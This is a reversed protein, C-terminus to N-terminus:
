DALWGELMVDFLFCQAANNDLEILEANKDIKIITNPKHKDTSITHVLMIKKGAILQEAIQTLISNYYTYNQLDNHLLSGDEYALM